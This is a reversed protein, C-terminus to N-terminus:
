EVMGPALSWSLIATVDGINTLEHPVDEPILIADGEELEYTMEANVASNPTRMRVRGQVVFFIETAGKHGWDIGGTKGPELTSTGLTIRETKAYERCIEVTGFVRANERKLVQADM